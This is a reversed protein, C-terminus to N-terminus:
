VYWIFIDGFNNFKENKLYDDNDLKIPCMDNLQNASLSSTARNGFISNRYVKFNKNKHSCCCNSYFIKENDRGLQNSYYKNSNNKLDIRKNKKEKPQIKLTSSIPSYVSTSFFKPFPENNNIRTSSLIDKANINFLPSSTKRQSKHKQKKLNLRLKANQRKLTVATSLIEESEKEVCAIQNFHNVIYTNGQINSQFISTKAVYDYWSNM